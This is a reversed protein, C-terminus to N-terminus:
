GLGILDIDMEENEGWCITGNCIYVASFIKEDKLTAYVPYKLYPTIDLYKEEGNEFIIQLHHQPLPKVTIVEPIQM